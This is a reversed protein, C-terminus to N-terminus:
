TRADNSSQRSAQRPRIELDDQMEKSQSRGTFCWFGGVITANGSVVPVIKMISRAPSTLPRRRDASRREGTDRSLLRNLSRAVDNQRSSTPGQRGGGKRGGLRGLSVAAPNKVKPSEATSDVTAEGVSIDVILKGLLNADRPRPSRRRDPMIGWQLREQRSGSAEARTAKRRRREVSIKGQRETANRAIAASCFERAGSSSPTNISALWRRRATRQRPRM